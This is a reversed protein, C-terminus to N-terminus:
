PITCRRLPIYLHPLQKLQGMHGLAVAKHIGWIHRKHGTPGPQLAPFRATITGLTGDFLLLPAVFPGFPGHGAPRSSGTAVRFIEDIRSM